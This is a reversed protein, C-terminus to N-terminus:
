GFSGGEALMKPKISRAKKKYIRLLAQAMASQTTGGNIEIYTRATQELGRPTVTQLAEILANNNVEPGIADKLLAVAKILSAKMAGKSEPYADAITILSFKLSEVDQKAMRKLVGVCQVERPGTQGKMVPSRPVTMDCEELLNALRVADPDKSILQAYYMAQPTLQVRNMNVSVFLNAQEETECDCVVYCPLDAIPLQRAAELRHQGDIVAYKDQSSIYAVTLPQCKAWSFNQVIKSISRKSRDSDITRQYEPDVYLKELDVWKMEPEQGPEFELKEETM